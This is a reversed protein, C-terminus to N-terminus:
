REPGPETGRPAPLVWLVWRQPYGEGYAVLASGDPAFQLGQMAHSAPPVRLVSEGTPVDWLVLGNSRDMSVLSNRDPSFSLAFADGQFGRLVVSDERAEVDWIRNTHDTGATALARGDSSFELAMIPGYHGQGTTTWTRGAALDVLRPSGSSVEAVALLDRDPAFAWANVAGPAGVLFEQGRATDWVCIRRRGNGTERTAALWKGDRSLRVRDSATADKISLLRRATELDWVQCTKDRGLTAVTTADRSLEVWETGVPFPFRKIPLPRSGHTEWTWVTGEDGVASFTRSDPSFAISRIPERGV